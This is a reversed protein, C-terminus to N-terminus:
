ANQEKFDKIFSQPLEGTIQKFIATFKSHSSFGALSALHSIKYDLYEPNKKLRDIICNIRLTNIYNNFDTKKYDNIIISLYKTNTNFQTALNTLSIGSDMFGETSEFNELQGLINNVTDPSISNRTSPVPSEAAKKDKVVKSIDITAKTSNFQLADKKILLSPHQTDTEVLEVSSNNTSFTSDNGNDTAVPVIESITGANISVKNKRIKIYFILFVLSM